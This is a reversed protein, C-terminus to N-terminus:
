DLLMIGSGSLRNIPAPEVAPPAAQWDRLLAEAEAGVPFGGSRHLPVEFRGRGQALGELSLFGGESWLALVGEEGPERTLLDAVVLVCGPGGGPLETECADQVMKLGQADFGALLVDRMAGATEPQVPLVARLAARLPELPVVVQAFPDALRAALVEQGPTRARAELAALTEAGARGWSRLALVDVAEPPLRGDELRAVQDASAIREANLLPSLTLACVGMVALAMALNARRIRARWGAGRLVAVAYLGGYALAVLVVEAALVRGPTWGHAAVRLWLAYGAVAALAPLVVAMGRAAGTLVAGAPAVADEREVTASVLTLGTAAMLLLLMTGSLGGFLGSLGRFPLAVLFVVTVVLIVPLLMPLLRLLLEPGVQDPFEEVLALAFGLALGTVAWPVPELALLDEIVRLGVVSLVAASLLIVAWVLGAFALAVGIRVVVSWSEVFLAPYSRWGGRVRAIWFPVPLAILVLAPLVLHPAEGMEEVADFRLSALLVLATVGGAICGAGLAARALTLRGAMVLFTAFFAGALVLAAMLARGALLGAEGLETLGYLALAAIGGLGALITRRHAMREM